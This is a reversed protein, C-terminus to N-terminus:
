GAIMKAAMPPVTPRSRRPHHRWPQSRASRMDWVGADFADLALHRCRLYRPMEGMMVDYEAFRGRSTYFMAAGNAICDALSVM